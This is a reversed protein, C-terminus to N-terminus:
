CNTHLQDIDALCYIILQMGNTLTNQMEISLPTVQLVILKLLKCFHLIDWFFIFTVSLRSPHGPHSIWYNNKDMEFDKWNKKGNTPVQKQKKTTTQTKKKQKNTEKKKKPCCACCISTGLSPPSILAVASSRRQLWPLM